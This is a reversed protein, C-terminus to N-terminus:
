AKEFDQADDPCLRGKGSAGINDREHYQNVRECRIQDPEEMVDRGDMFAQIERWMHLWLLGHVDQNKFM